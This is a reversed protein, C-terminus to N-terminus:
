ISKDDTDSEYISLTKLKDFYIAFKNMYEDMNTRICSQIEEKICLSQFETRLTSQIITKIEDESCLSSTHSQMDILNPQEYIPESTPPTHPTINELDTFSSQSMLTGTAPFVRIIQKGICDRLTLEYQRRSAKIGIVAYETEDVVVIKNKSVESVPIFHM